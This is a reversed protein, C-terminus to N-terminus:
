YSFSTLRGQTIVGNALPSSFFRGLLRTLSASGANLSLPPYHVRPIVTHPYHHQFAGTCSGMRGMNATRELVMRRGFCRALCCETKRSNGIAFMDTLKRGHGSDEAWSSILPTRWLPLPMVLQASFPLPSNLRPCDAKRLKM